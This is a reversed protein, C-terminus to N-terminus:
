VAPSAAPQGPPLPVSGDREHMAAHVALSEWDPRRGDAVDVAALHTTTPGDAVDFRIARRIVAAADADIRRHQRLHAEWSGVVFVETMRHADGVDRYLRWRSAGTRLRVRRLEDMAALFADLEREDITWVTAIMVRSTDVGDPHPPMEWDPAPQPPTIEGLVPLPMRRAALGLLVAAASLAVLAASPGLADAVAGALIAGLPLTGAFAMMYLSMIRGRVWRPSLLQTTANLTSLVWVWLVGTAAMALAASAVSRSLGLAIGAIGFASIATPVMRAGLWAAAARRSVAAVLAGAGMAGLLLGYVNAQAGLVESTFSPLTAQVVASTIAFGSAVMLVWRYAATHRAYRLGDAIASGFPEAEPRAGAAQATAVAVIMALYSVANALFAPGPGLTAVMVGGLAPGVARAVNFAASNLAVADAVHESPVLDPVLAQWSPMMVSQGLGITLGLVLLVAPTLAGAYWLTALLGASTVMLVHAALIVRRRDVLDALAGAPMAVLLLPLTPAAVMLGVWLPSGTLELMLWSAAVIQLFSGLNSAVSALWLNRYARYRLPQAALRTM